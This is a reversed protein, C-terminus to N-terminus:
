GGAGAQDFGASAPEAAGTPQITADAPDVLALDGGEQDRVEVEGQRNGDRDLADPQDCNGTNWDVVISNTMPM